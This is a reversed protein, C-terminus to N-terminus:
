IAAYLDRLYRQEEAGHKDGFMDFHNESCSELSLSVSMKSEQIENISVEIEQSKSAHKSGWNLFKKHKKKRM